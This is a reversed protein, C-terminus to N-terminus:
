REIRVADHEDLASLGSLVVRDGPRLGELVEVHNASVRGLKVSVRRAVEGGDDLRYLGVREHARANAPRGVYTVDDLRELVVTGDVSMNPRAGAPLDSVLSVDVTVTGDRVAPDIRSVSGDIMGNRTDIAAAQGIALDGARNQPVRLEAKLRGPQVVRGMTEGANIWQGEEVGSEALVGDIGARVVLAAAREENFRVISRLRGVQTRQASLQEDASDALVDLRRTEIGLRNELEAVLERGRALDFEAVLGPNKANLERNMEDRHTAELYQTRVQAILAKQALENSEVNSALTVLEAEADSLQQRVTLLQVEVDPNSLRYLATTATVEAGPEVRIEDVRGATLATIWRRRVPVLTGPGRVDRVFEGHAVTDMWVTDAPVTPLAPGLTAVYATVAALGVVAVTAAVLKGVRRRGQTRPVDMPSLAGEAHLRIHRIDAADSETQNDSVAFRKAVAM